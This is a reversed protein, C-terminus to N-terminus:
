VCSTQVRSDPRQPGGWAEVPGQRAHRCGGGTAVTAATAPRARSPPSAPQLATWVRDAGETLPARRHDPAPRHVRATAQGTGSSYEIPCSVQVIALLSTATM